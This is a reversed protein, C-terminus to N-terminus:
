LARKKLPTSSPSPSSTSKNNILPNQLASGWTIPQPDPPSAPFAAQADGGGQRATDGDGDSAPPSLSGLQDLLTALLPELVGQARDLSEVYKPVAEAQMKEAHEIAESVRLLIPAMEIVLEAVVSSMSSHQLKALKAITAHVDPPLTVHVRPKATPM